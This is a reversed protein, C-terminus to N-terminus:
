QQESNLAQERLQQEEKTKWTWFISNYGKTFLWTDCVFVVSAFIWFGFWEM